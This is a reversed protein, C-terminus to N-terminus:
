YGSLKESVFFLELNKSGKKDSLVSNALKVYHSVDSFVHRRM